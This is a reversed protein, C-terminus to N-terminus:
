ICYSYISMSFGVGINFWHWVPHSSLWFCAFPIIHLVDMADHYSYGLIYICLHVWFRLIVIVKYGHCTATSLPIFSNNRVLWHEGGRADSTRILKILKMPQTEQMPLLDPYAWNWVASGHETCEMMAPFSNWLLMQSLRMQQNHGMSICVTGITWHDHESTSSSKKNRLSGRFFFFRCNEMICVIMTSLLLCIIALYCARKWQEFTSFTCLNLIFFRTGICKRRPDLPPLKWQPINSGSSSCTAFAIPTSINPTFRDSKWLQPYLDYLLYLVFLMWCRTDLKISLVMLVYWTCFVSCIEGVELFIESVDQFNEIEFGDVWSKEHNTEDLLMVKTVLWQVWASFFVVVSGCRESPRTRQDSIFSTMLTM